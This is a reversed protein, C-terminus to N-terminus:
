PNGVLDLFNVVETGNSSFTKKYENSTGVQTWGASISSIAESLQLTVVVDSNTWGSPSYIVGATPNIDDM